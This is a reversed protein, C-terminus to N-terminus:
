PYVLRFYGQRDRPSLTAKVTSDNTQLTVAVNTWKVPPTLSGASQLICNGASVPWTLVSSGAALSLNMVPRFAISSNPAMTTSCKGASGANFIASIESQSLARNYLSFEDLLGGLTAGYTSEGPFNNPRHGFYLDSSTLPVISGITAQGVVAGNLYLMAVGSAKDYTLAVHQFVNAQVIGEASVLNHGNHNNDVVSAFLSGSETSNSNLWLQVGVQRRQDDWEAIPHLGAVSAVNIWGEMTLGAGTGADLSPSAPVHAYGNTYNLLQFAKGVEGPAFTVGAELIANNSNIIDEGNGEGPWWGVIGSPPPTCSNTTGGTVTLLANSSQVSGVSNTIVVFYSGEDAPQVNSLTLSSTNAGSIATSNPGYWQYYLTSSGNATVSFDATGGAAVTQNTPQLQIVPAIAIPCKGASGANYIAAIESQSLARNYLSFEDLLGGLIAGYTWDGPIDNPRHGFYLDSSTLPEISGITAHGVVTGNLYLRAVGSAKDYTLAVHQFVNPQVIGDASILNHTNHDTDVVSAFLAGRESPYSNLWLQVGVQRSQDDWEAIPHFGNVSGVKIWGEMTLGEGTGVDLSPSAPVHAYGNTYNLMQFAQGVEGHAFTVGAELIANNSNIIDQGNGEGPWWGVIGSPAPTCSNTSSIVTLMANSSQASGISNTILVFYTGADAPQVDSLMLTSTNAGSIATGNPGYWQYYLPSLGSAAVSFDATGGAAVTQNTPQLRIVPATYSNTFDCKGASGANYIAAIESPSLARNYLSFEDLLGGLTAGYTWDGPVDNPRHGFYLDSSTLPVISGITTQGVMAGNLYLTAVGSAKDYALAVHQFVNPQVIGDASILNHNNHGTDVVSAFLAGNEWPNSNLWLQVGVQRRQDDWEAIPHLGNVSGVKIWGEMTLGGSTGVDLSPSAPVRAYGNNSNLMQFAQGVEGPTFTVGAELIANNSSVIDQGNGEGPWWGVIGSPAPTCSNTTGGTVTLLANSSQGSGFSNTVLVFYSGADAPQVNSLTLSSTNAGSIPLSNPGYWQFYLTSSGSASVSFDATGGAAVTQNTPQLTIVPASSSNTLSCKGASGANFIAAIESQSLARNYLSFEDLLGGLTTGYTWDGPVDNPRHGFYLDSSTLPVITGITTQGVVAGNLYLMAVGSAKDYTLAVHQFVNPQVIGQASLVNHTNHNTDVVSAFLAGSESPYSNLWLQVGVQRSGDDWEAIPHFGDVSGVKIWGEMTLGGGTGVNLSPSAPVLLYANTNDLQFAQGVMGPAFTAGGPLLAAYATNGNISDRGNGEAKWWGVLGNPLPQANSLGTAVCAAFLFLALRKCFNASTKM